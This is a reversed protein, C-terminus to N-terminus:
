SDPMNALYWAYKFDIIAALRGNQFKEPCIGGHYRVNQKMTINFILIFITIKTSIHRDFTPWIDYSVYPVDVGGLSTHAIHFFDDM